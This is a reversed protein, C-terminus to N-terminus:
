VANSVVHPQLAAAKHHADRREIRVACQVLRSKALVQLSQAAGANANVDAAAGTAFAERERAVFHIAHEGDRDFFEFATDVHARHTHLHAVGTLHNIKELEGRTVRQIRHMHEARFHSVGGRGRRCFEFM